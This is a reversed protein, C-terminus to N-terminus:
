SVSPRRRPRLLGAAGAQHVPAERSRTTTRSTPPPTGTSSCRPRIRASVNSACGIGATTRTPSTPASCGCASRIAASRRSARGKIGRLDAFFEEVMAPTWSWPFENTHAIFRRVLAIRRRHHRHSTAACNSTAGATSCKRSRKSRPICLGSQASWIRADSTMSLWGFGGSM